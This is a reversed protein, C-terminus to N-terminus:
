DCFHPSLLSAAGTTELDKDPGSRTDALGIFHQLRRAGFALFAHVDDNAHDFGVAALLCLRQQLAELDQRALWGDVDIANHAFEIDVGREFPARAQYENILEGMCIHSAAAM